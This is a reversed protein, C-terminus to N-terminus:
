VTTYKQQRPEALNYPKWKYEKRMLWDGWDKLCEQPDGTFERWGTWLVRTILHKWSVAAKWSCGLWDSCSSSVGKQEMVYYKQTSLRGFWLFSTHQWLLNYGWEMGGLTPCHSMCLIGFVLSYIIYTEAVDRVLLYCLCFSFLM